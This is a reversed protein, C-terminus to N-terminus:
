KKRVLDNERKLKLIIKERTSNQKNIYDEGKITNRGFYIKDDYLGLALIEIKTDLYNEGIYTSEDSFSVLGNSKVIYVNKGGKVSYTGSYYWINEFEFYSLVKNLSSYLKKMKFDFIYDISEIYISLRENNFNIPYTGFYKIVKSNPPIFISDELNYKNLIELNNVNLLNAGILLENIYKSTLPRQIVNGVHLAIKPSIIKHVNSTNEIELKFTSLYRSGIFYPNVNLSVNSENGFRFILEKELEIKELENIKGEDFLYNISEKLFEYDTKFVKKLRRKHFFSSSSKSYSSFSHVGNYNIEESFLSDLKVPDFPMVSYKIDDFITQEEIPNFTIDVREGVENIIFSKISKQSFTTTLSLYIVLFSFVKLRM